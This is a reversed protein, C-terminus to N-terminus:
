ILHFPEINFNNCFKLCWKNNYEILTEEEGTRMKWLVIASDWGVSVLTLGLPDCCIASVRRSHKKLVHLRIVFCSRLLVSICNNYSFFVQCIGISNSFIGFPFQAIWPLLVYNQKDLM